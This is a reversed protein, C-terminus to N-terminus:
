QPLELTYWCFDINQAFIHFYDFPYNDNKCGHIIATYQMPTNEYYSTLSFNSYKTM